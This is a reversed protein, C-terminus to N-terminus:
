GDVFGQVSRLNSAVVAGHWGIASVRACPVTITPVDICYLGFSQWQAYSVTDSLTLQICAAHVRLLLGHRLGPSSGTSQPTM